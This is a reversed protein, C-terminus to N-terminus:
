NTKLQGDNASGSGALAANVKALRAAEDDAPPADSAPLPNAKYFADLGDQMAQCEADSFCGPAQPVNFTLAMQTRGPEARFVLTYHKTIGIQM